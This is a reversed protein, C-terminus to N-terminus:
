LLIEQTNELSFGRNRLYAAAVAYGLQRKLYQAKLSMAIIAKM